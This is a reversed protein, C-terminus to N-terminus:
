KNKIKLLVEDIIRKLEKKPLAGQAVQPNDAMPVFVLTPFASVGFAAALEREKMADVKYIIIKGEYEAALEELVPALMQCPGCWDAYFDIIAPKEGLYKWERDNEEYDVVKELFGTKDLQVTKKDKRAYSPFSVTLAALLVLIMINKKTNMNNGTTNLQNVAAFIIYNELPFYKM